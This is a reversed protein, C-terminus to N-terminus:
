VGQNAQMVLWQGRAAFPDILKAQAVRLRKGVRDLRLCVDPAYEPPMYVLLPMPLDVSDLPHRGGGGADLELRAALVKREVIQSRTVPAEIQVRIAFDNGPHMAHHTKVGALVSARAEEFLSELIPCSVAHRASGDCFSSIQRLRRKISQLDAIKGSISDIHAETLTKVEARTLDSDPDSLERVQDSSFGLARARLIFNLRRLHEDSYSRYGSATRAPAPIANPQRTLRPAAAASRQYSRCM